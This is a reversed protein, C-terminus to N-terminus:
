ILNLIFKFHEIKKNSTELFIHKPTNKHMEKTTHMKFVMDKTTHMKLVVDKKIKEQIHRKNTYYKIMKSIPFFFM